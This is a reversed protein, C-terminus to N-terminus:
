IPAGAEQEFEKSVPTSASTALAWLCNPFPHATRFAGNANLSEDWLKAIIVQTSYYPLLDSCVAPTSEKVRQRALWTQNSYRPVGWESLLASAKGQRKIWHYVTESSPLETKSGPSMAIFPSGEHIPKLERELWSLLNEDGSMTATLEM